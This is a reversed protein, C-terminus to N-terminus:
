KFFSFSKYCYVKLGFFTFGAPSNIDMCSRKNKKKSKGNWAEDLDIDQAMARYKLLKAARAIRSRGSFFEIVDFEKGPHIGTGEPITAAMWVLAIFAEPALLPLSSSLLHCSTELKAAHLISKYTNLWTEKPARMLVLKRLAAVIIREPAM